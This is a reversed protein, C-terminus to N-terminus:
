CPSQTRTLSPNPLSSAILTVPVWEPLVECAMSLYTIRFAGAFEVDILFCNTFCSDCLIVIEEGKKIDREREKKKKKQKKPSYRHGISTGLSLASDLAAAAPRCVVAVRSGLQM